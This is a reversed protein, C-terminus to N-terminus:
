KKLREPSTQISIVSVKDAIEPENNELWAHAEIVACADASYLRPCNFPLNSVTVTEETGKILFEVKAYRKM